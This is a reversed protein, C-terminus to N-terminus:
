GLVHCCCNMGGALCTFPGKFFICYVGGGGRLKRTVYKIHYIYDSSILM